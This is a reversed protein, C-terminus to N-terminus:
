NLISMKRMYKEAQLKEANFIISMKLVFNKLKYKELMPYLASINQM